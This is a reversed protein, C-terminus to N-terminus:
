LHTGILVQNPSFQAYVPSNESLGQASLYDAEALACLTQGNSLLIRVECPGDVASLIESIRGTLQNTASNATADCAHLTLWGAKFLAVVESGLTLQLRETSGHTIQAQIRAADPLEIEILDNRGKAHIACVRGALQNRASTRLMLRSLLQLDEDHEAALLVRAQMAELRKYLSLVRMGVTTLKVGGHADRCREVLPMEAMNNLEDILDWAAKDSLGATKAAVTISGLSAIQELLTLRQPRHNAHQALSLLAHM